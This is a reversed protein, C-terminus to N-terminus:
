QVFVVVERESLTEASEDGLLDRGVIETPLFFSDSRALEIGLSAGAAENAHGNGLFVATASAVVEAEVRDEAFFQGQGTDAAGAVADRQVVVDRRRVEGVDAVVLLLLAPQGSDGVSSEDGRDGHGLWTRATVERADGGGRSTVAVSVDQVPRLREDGVADVAVQHDHGGLGIGCLAVGSHREQDDFPSHGPEFTSSVELLDALRAGVSGLQEEIVHFDRDLISEAVFTSREVVEGAIQGLLPQRDRHGTQGRGPSAHRPSELVHLFALSEAGGDSRELVGLENQGFLPGFDVHSLRIDIGTYQSEVGTSKGRGLCGRGLVPAGFEQLPHGVLTQM